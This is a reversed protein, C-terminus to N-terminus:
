SSGPLLKLIKQWRSEREEQLTAIRQNLWLLVDADAGEAPQAPRERRPRAQTRASGTGPGPIPGPIPRPEAEPAPSPPSPPAVPVPTEPATPTAPTAAAAPETPPVPASAVADAAAERERTYAALESKLDQFERTVERLQDLEQRILDMQERQLTGFMDVLMGMANQFQDMMQQQMMGFQNMLPVLVAATEGLNRSEIEAPLVTVPQLSRGREAGQGEAQPPIAAPLAVSRSVALTRVPHEASSGPDDDATTEDGRSRSRIRIRYRGVALEDGEVLPAHRVAANNVEVGGGGLLDVVWLGAHTRVLSCHFPSVSPDALRFKCGAASGVLSIVRNMPWVAARSPGNLFELGVEPWPEGGYGRAMLPIPEPPREDDAPGRAGIPRRLEYPGIRLSEERTLWGYKRSRGGGLTGLRSELDIWFAHGEVVQLYAHRRSVLRHELPVDARQDRGILAFPQHLLRVGVDPEGVAEVVLQLPEALRCADLFSKM